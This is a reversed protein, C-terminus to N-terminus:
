AAYSWSESGVVRLLNSWLPTALLGSPLFMRTGVHSSTRSSHKLSVLTTLFFGCIASGHYQPYTHSVREKSQNQVYLLQLTDMMEGLSFVTSRHYHRGLLAQQASSSQARAGGVM